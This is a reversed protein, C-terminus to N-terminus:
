NTSEHCEDASQHSPPRCSKVFGLLQCGNRFNQTPLAFLYWPCGYYRASGEELWVSVCIFGLQGLRKGWNCLCALMCWLFCNWWTPNLGQSLPKKTSNNCHSAIPEDKESSVALLGIRRAVHKAKSAEGADLCIWQNAIVQICYNAAGGRMINKCEQCSKESVLCKTQVM